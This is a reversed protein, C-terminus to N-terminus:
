DNNPKKLYQSPDDLSEEESDSLIGSMPYGAFPQVSFKPRGIIKYTEFFNDIPVLQNHEGTGGCSVIINPPSIYLRRLLLWDSVLVVAYMGDVILDAHNDSLSFKEADVVISSGPKLENHFAEGTNSFLLDGKLVGDRYSNSINSLENAAEPSLKSGLKAILSELRVLDVGTDILLSSNHTTAGYIIADISKKEKICAEVINDLPIVGRTIQSYLTPPPMGLCDAIEKRSALRMAVSFRDLILDNQAKQEPNIDSATEIGKNQM